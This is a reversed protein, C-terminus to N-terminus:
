TRITSVDSGDSRYSDLFKRLSEVAAKAAAADSGPARTLDSALADLARITAVIEGPAVGSAIHNRIGKAITRGRHARLRSRDGEDPYREAWREDQDASRDAALACAEKVAGVLTLVLEARSSAKQAARLAVKHASERERLVEHAFAALLSGAGPGHNGRRRAFSAARRELEEKGGMPSTRGFDTGM